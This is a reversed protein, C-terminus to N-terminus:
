EEGPENSDDDSKEFDDTIYRILKKEKDIYNCERLFVQPYYNKDKKLVYDIM